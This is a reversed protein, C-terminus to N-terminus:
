KAKCKVKPHLDSRSRSKGFVKRLVTLNNFKLELARKRTTFNKKVHKRSAVSTHRLRLTNEFSIHGRDKHKTISQLM